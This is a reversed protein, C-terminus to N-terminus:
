FALPFSSLKIWLCTLLCVSLRETIPPQHPCPLAACQSWVLFFGLQVGVWCVLWVCPWVSGEGAASPRPSSKSDSPTLPRGWCEPPPQMSTWSHGGLQTYIWIDLKSLVTYLVWDGGVLDGFVCARVCVWVCMVCVSIKHLVIDIVFKFAKSRVSISEM